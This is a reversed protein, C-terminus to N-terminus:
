LGKQVQKVAFMMINIFTVPFPACLGDTHKKSLRFAYEPINYSAVQHIFDSSFYKGMLLLHSAKAYDQGGSNSRSSPNSLKLLLQRITDGNKRTEKELFALTLEIRKM